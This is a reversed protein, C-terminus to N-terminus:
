VQFGVKIQLSMIFGVTSRGVLFLGLINICTANHSCQLRLFCIEQRLLCMVMILKVYVGTRERSKGKSSFRFSMELLSDNGPHHWAKDNHSPQYTHVLSGSLYTPPLMVLPLAECALFNLPCIGPLSPYGPRGPESNHPLSTAEWTFVGNSM